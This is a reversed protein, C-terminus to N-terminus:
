GPLESLVRSVASEDNSYPSVYDAAAKCDPGANAVAVGVGAWSLMPADNQGDGFAIVQERPLGYGLAIAELAAGKNADEHMFELYEPNTKMITVEDGWRRKWVEYLEDRGRPSCQGPASPDTILIIKTSEKGKFIRLSHVFTFVSGTQRHYIDAYRRLSADDKGYLVEDLYYNLHFSNAEAYEILEDCYKAPLPRELIIESGKAASDRAMAGNYSIVPGDLGLKSYWPRVSSTMRGSALVVMVGSDSLRRLARADEESVRGKSDLLTGDLDLAVLRIPLGKRVM